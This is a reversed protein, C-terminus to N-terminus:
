MVRKIMDIIDEAEKQNLANGFRYIKNNCEFFIKGGKMAFAAKLSRNGYISKTLLIWESKGFYFNDSLETNVHWNKTSEFQVSWEDFKVGFLTRFYKINQISTELVEKGFFMWLCGILFFICYFIFISAIPLRVWWSWTDYSILKPLFFAGLGSLVVISMIFSYISFDSGISLKFYSDIGKFIQYSNNSKITGM